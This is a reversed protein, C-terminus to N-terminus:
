VVAESEDILVLPATLPLLFFLFFMYARIIHMLITSRHKHSSFGMIQRWLTICVYTGQIFMYPPYHAYHNKIKKRVLTESMNIRPSVRAALPSLKSQWSWVSFIGAWNISSLNMPLRELRHIFIFKQMWSNDVHQKILDRRTNKCLNMWM